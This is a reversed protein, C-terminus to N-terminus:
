SSHSICLTKGNWELFTNNTVADVIISPRKKLESTLQEIYQQQSSVIKELSEIRQELTPPIFTKVGRELNPKPLATKTNIDELVSLDRFFASNLLEEQDIPQTPFFTSRDWDNTSRTIKGTNTEM